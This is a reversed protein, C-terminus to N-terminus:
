AWDHVRRHGGEGLEGTHKTQRFADQTTCGKPGKLAFRWGDSEKRETKKKNAHKIKKIKKGSDTAAKETEKRRERVNEHRM